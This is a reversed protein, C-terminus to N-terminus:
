KKTFFHPKAVKLYDVMSWLTLMAAIYFAFVGAYHLFAGFIWYDNFNSPGFALLGAISGIQFGTKYKGIQSVPLNGVGIQAMWERLSSITIERGIIILAPITIWISHNDEILLALAVVVMLKDAVPDLFAGFRTMQDYKRALYGDFADTIGALLFVIGAYFGSYTFPLYFIIVVLPVFLIRIFTLWNPLNM